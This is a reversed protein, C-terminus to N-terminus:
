EPPYGIRVSHIVRELLSYWLDRADKDTAANTATLWHMAVVELGHMLSSVLLEAELQDVERNQAALEQALELATRSFTAQFIQSPRPDGAEFGGLAQWLYSIVGPIDTERLVTVVHEFMSSRSGGGPPAAGVSAKISHVLIGLAETCSSTVIDDISAFHNFVTRRSVGAREALTDVSFGAVGNQAILDRAADLIARHSRERLPHPRPAPTSVTM